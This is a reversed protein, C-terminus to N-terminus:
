ILWVDFKEDVESVLSLNTEHFTRGIQFLGLALEIKWFDSLRMDLLAAKLSTQRDVPWGFM